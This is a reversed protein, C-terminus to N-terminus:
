EEMKRTFEFPYGWTSLNSDKCGMFLKEKPTYYNDGVFGLKIAILETRDVKSKKDLAKTEEVEITETQINKTM